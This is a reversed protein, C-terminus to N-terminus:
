KVVVLGGHTRLELFVSSGNVIEVPTPHGAIALQSRSGAAGTVEFCLEFLVAGDNLSVGRLQPDYWSFTLTGENALHTGFSKVSMGRVGFNKIDTFRLAGADWRVSYQMSLIQEFGAVTVPVCVQEGQKANVAALTLTLTDVPPLEYVAEPIFRNQEPMHVPPPVLTFASVAAIILMLFFQHIKSKM